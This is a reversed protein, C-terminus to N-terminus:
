LLPFICVVRPGGLQRRPLGEDERPRFSGFLPLVASNQTRRCLLIECVSVLTSRRGVSQLPPSCCLRQRSRTASVKGFVFVFVWVALPPLVLFSSPSWLWRICVCSPPGGTASIYRHWLPAKSAGHDTAAQAAQRGTSVPLATAGSWCCTSSRSIRISGSPTPPPVLRRCPVLLGLAVVSNETSISWSRFMASWRGIVKDSSSRASSMATRM